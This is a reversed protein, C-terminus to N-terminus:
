DIMLYVNQSHCLKLLNHYYHFHSTKTHIHHVFVVRKLQWVVAIGLPIIQILIMKGLSLVCV